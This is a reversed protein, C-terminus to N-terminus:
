YDAPFRQQAHSVAGAALTEVIISALAVGVKAIKAVAPPVTGNRTRGVADEDFEAVYRPDYAARGADGDLRLLSRAPHPDAQTV